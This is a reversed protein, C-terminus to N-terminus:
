QWATKIEVDETTEIKTDKGSGSYIVKKAIWLPKKTNIIFVGAMKDCKKNDPCANTCSFRIPQNDVFPLTGTYPTCISKDSLEFLWPQKSPVIDNSKPLPQTLRLAFGPNKKLPEVGCVVVDKDDTGFCPDHIENGVMCRWTNPRLVALSETWCYGQKAEGAPIVPKYTIVQTKEAAMAFNNLLMFVLIFFLSLRKM